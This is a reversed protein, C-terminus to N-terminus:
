CIEEVAKKFDNILKGAEKKEENPILKFEEFLTSIIGKKSLYKLRFAEHQEKSEPIFNQIEALYTTIKEKM